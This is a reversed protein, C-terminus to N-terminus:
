CDPGRMGQFEPYRVRFFLFPLPLHTVKSLEDTQWQARPLRLEHGNIRGGDSSQWKDVNTCRLLM